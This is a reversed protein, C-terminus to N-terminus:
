EHGIFGGNKPESPGSEIPDYTGWIKLYSQIGETKRYTTTQGSPLGNRPGSQRFVSNKAQIWKKHGSKFFITVIMVRWQRKPTGDVPCRFSLSADHNYCDKKLRAMFFSNLGFVANKPLWPWSVAQWAALSGGVSFGFTDLTVELYSPSIIWNFWTRRLRFIPTEYTM